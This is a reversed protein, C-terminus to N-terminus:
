VPVEYRAIGKVNAFLAAHTRDGLRLKALVQSVHKKVTYETVYLLEAIQRNSLGQGLACLVEMEKSTLQETRNQELYDASLPTLLSDLIYSDYYRRGLRILHLAHIFEEPSATQAILGDINQKKALALESKSINSVLLLVKGEYGVKRAKQVLELGNHTGCKWHCILLDSPHKQLIELTHEESSSERSVGYSPEASLMATLGKRVFPRHDAILINM